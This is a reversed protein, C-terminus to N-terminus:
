RRAGLTTTLHRALVRLGPERFMEPDDGPVYHVDYGLRALNRWDAAPDAAYLQRHAGALILTARGSYTRSRHREFAVKSLLEVDVLSEPLTRRQAILARAVCLKIARVASRALKVAPYPVRKWRARKPADRFVTRVTKLLQYRSFRRRAADSVLGPFDYPTISMLCLVAISEGLAMLRHAIELAVVAGWCAGGLYYAGRPQVERIEQVFREAMADISTLPPEGGSLGVPQLAYLPRETGLHRALGALWTTSGDRLPVLFLPPAAGLSQLPIVVRTNVPRGGRVLEALQAITPAEVATAPPFATTTMSEMATLLEAASLSDGGFDFFDDTIGIPYTHLLEEWIKVLEVEVRDRPAVYGTPRAFPVEDPAPLTQRDVKGNASVPLRDLFVFRTPIMYQPLTKALSRRLQSVPVGSTGAAVVYAILRPVGPDVERTVVAAERVVDLSVLAREVEAPEVRNGRIKYGRDKRGLYELCQGARMRGLDGTRYIREGDGAPGPRFAANTLDGRNWYGPALYRSRIAIEGVVDEEVERGDDDIVAGHMDETAYGIPVVGDSLTTTRDIFFQRSIGTETAGLGIALRCHPEFHEKYLAVDIKTAADGELRIIRIAPFRVAGMLFSRFITPVSHYMTIGERALWEGLPRGIGQKRADYPFVAAGNLLANFLSSVAGSFAPSQLLTLRDDPSIELANTYRMINHLVNRHVDWVGKPRGTSGSTYYIYAPTGAGISPSPSSEPQASVLDDFAAVFPAPLLLTSAAAAGAVDALVLAAGADSLTFEIRDAPDSPDIPVYLKGAKLVGLIAAILPAGQEMLLAIPESGEGRRALIGHAVANALADLQRYTFSHSATRVALRDAHRAVQREFRSPISQEIEAKAFRVFTATTM